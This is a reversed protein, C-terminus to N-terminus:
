RNNTAAGDELSSCTVHVSSRFQEDDNHIRVELKPHTHIIHTTLSENSTDRLLPAPFDYGCSFKALYRPLLENEHHESVSM